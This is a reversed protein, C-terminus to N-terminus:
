ANEMPKAAKWLSIFPGGGMVVMLVAIAIQDGKAGEFTSKFHGKM